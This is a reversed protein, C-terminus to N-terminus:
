KRFYYLFAERESNCKYKKRLCPFDHIFIQFYIGSNFTKILTDDANCNDKSCVCLIADVGNASIKQCSQTEKVTETFGLTSLDSTGICNYGIQDKKTGKLPLLLMCLNAGGSCAGEQVAM